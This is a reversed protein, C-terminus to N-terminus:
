GKRKPRIVSLVATEDNLTKLRDIIDKASITKLTDAADFLTGGFIACDIMGMVIAETNDFRKVADGYASKKIAELLSENIGFSLAKKVEKKIEEAVAEPNESEGEFIIASYGDGQFYESSFEEGILSSDVLRRYLESCEGALLELTIGAVMKDRVTPETEFCEKFGLCFIPRAVELSQEVYYSQVKNEESFKARKVTVKETPKISMQVQALVESTKVNGAICLYMNSPNYFTNYCEYLLNHDIKSISDVTGAIDIKVPHNEYMSSLMNFLVRWGPNDEYMKIEQAIIGQEKEVTEVTFYPSQVFDLLIDLNEEFNKTCSFLYCTRDFSTFANAYAGTKAFREFTDGEESEFLKHELFHAIGAPVETEKQGNRSFRTDISGYKTGFVAYSSAFNPKEMVYVSLGNDLVAHTYEGFLQSKIVNTKM